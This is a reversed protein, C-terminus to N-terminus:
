CPVAEQGLWGGTLREPLVRLTGEAPSGSDRRAAKGREEQRHGPVLTGRPLFDVRMERVHLSSAGLFRRGWEQSARLPSDFGGSRTPRGPWCRGARHPVSLDDVSRLRVSRSGRDGRRSDTADSLFGTTSHRGSSSGHQPSQSRSDDNQSRRAAIHASPSGNRTWNRRIGSTNLKNPYSRRTTNSVLLTFACDNGTSGAYSESHSVATSDLQMQSECAVEIFISAAITAGVADASAEGSGPFHTKWCCLISM